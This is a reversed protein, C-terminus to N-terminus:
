TSIDRKMFIWGTLILFVLWYILDVVLSFSLGAGNPGLLGFIEGKDVTMSLNDVINKRGLRKTLGQLELVTEMRIGEM